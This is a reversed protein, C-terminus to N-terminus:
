DEGPIMITIVPEGNDGPGCVATLQVEGHTGERFVLMKYDLRDQKRSAGQIAVRLMSLADWLRGTESQGTERDKASPTAVEDWVRRTVAVPYRLGAERAMESVDVLVGDALADARTYSFIVEGDAFPDGAKDKGQDTKKM